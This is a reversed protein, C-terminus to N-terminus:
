SSESQFQEAVLTYGVVVIWCYLCVVCKEWVLFSVTARAGVFGAARAAALRGSAAATRPLFSMAPTTAVALVALALALGSAFRPM